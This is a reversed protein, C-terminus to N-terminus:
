SIDGVVRSISSSSCAFNDTFDHLTHLTYVGTYGSWREVRLRQTAARLQQQEGASSTLVELLVVYKFTEKPVRPPAKSSSGSERVYLTITSVPLKKDRLHTYAEWAGSWRVWGDLLQPDTSDELAKYALVLLHKVRWEGGSGQPSSRGGCAMGGAELILTLKAHEYYSDQLLTFNNGLAKRDQGRSEKRSLGLRLDKAFHAVPYWLLPEGMEESADAEIANLIYGEAFHRNDHLAQALLGRLDRHRQEWRIFSLVARPKHGPRASSLIRPLRQQSVVVAASGSRKGNTESTRFESRRQISCTYRLCDAWYSDVAPSVVMNFCGTWLGTQQGRTARSSRSSFSTNTVADPRPPRRQLKNMVSLNPLPQDQRGDIVPRGFM